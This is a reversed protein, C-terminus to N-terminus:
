KKGKEKLKLKVDMLEKALKSRETLDDSASYMAELKDSLKKLKLLENQNISEIYYKKNIENNDSFNFFILDKVLNDNDVDYDNYLDEVKYYNAGDNIRSLIKEYISQYTPNTFELSTFDADEIYDKKHLLSVLIFKDAKQYADVFLNEPVQGDYDDKEKVPKDDLEKNLSERLVDIPVNTFKKVIPLYLDREAPTQLLSLLNIAKKIYTAKDFNSSNNMEEAWIRLKYEFFEEANDLLEKFKEEGNERIFEDPDKGNPIQIIKIKFGNNYLIDAAKMTAKKGADDGDYCVTINKNIRRLQLAHGETFATGLTAVANNFGYQHLMIVDIQGEVLLIGNYKEIGKSKIAQYLGFVLKSKDFVSTARTNKYKALDKNDTLIRGSFGVVQGMQNYIPFVLREFQTDYLKGNSNNALGANILLEDSLNGKYKDRLYFIMSNFDRSYGIRFDDLSKKNLKRKKIYNQAIVATPKYLEQYYYDSACEILDLIEKKEKALKAYDIGSSNDAYEIKMNVSDALKEVASLFDLNEVKQVFTIIDGYEGCGYCKYASSEEYICFSPTKEYHFPCRAWYRGGKKTVETYKEVLGIFDVRTKLDTLFGEKFSKREM